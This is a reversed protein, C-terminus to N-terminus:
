RPQEKAMREMEARVADRIIQHVVHRPARNIPASEHFIPAPEIEYGIVGHILRESDATRFRYVGYGLHYAEPKETTSFHIVERNWHFLGTNVTVVTRYITDSM